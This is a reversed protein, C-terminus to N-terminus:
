LDNLPLYINFVTGKGVESEVEILGKHKNVIIDHSLSLGQGTGKGVEKTTFFPDYIKNFYEEPIGCGDDAIRINVYDGPSSEFFGSDKQSKDIHILKTSIRIEGGDPMAQSSNICINILVNQISSSDGSIFLDKESEVVKISVKKDVTSELIEV